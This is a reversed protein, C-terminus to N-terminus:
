IILVLISVLNQGMGSVEAELFLFIVFELKRKGCYM